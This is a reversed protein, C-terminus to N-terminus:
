KKRRSGKGRNLFVSKLSWSRRLSCSAEQKREEDSRLRRGGEHAGEDYLGRSGVHSNREEAEVEAEKASTYIQASGSDWLSEPTAARRYEMLCDEISRSVRSMGSVLGELSPREIKPPRLMGHSSNGSYRPYRPMTPRSPPSDQRTSSSPCPSEEISSNEPPSASHLSAERLTSGQLPTESSHAPSSTPASQPAAEEYDGKWVAPLGFRVTHASVWRLYPQEHTHGRYAKITALRIELHEIEKKLDTVNKILTLRRHEDNSTATCGIASCSLVLPSSVSRSSQSALLRTDHDKRTQSKFTFSM